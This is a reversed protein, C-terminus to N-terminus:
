INENFLDRLLEQREKIAQATNPRGVILEYNDSDSFMEQLDACIQTRNRVLEQGSEYLEDLAVMTADYLPISLRGSNEKDPIRFANEQFIQKALTIRSLFVNRFQEVRQESLNKHREMCNDLITKVAGRLHSQKRFAFFRLVIECDTMRKFLRHERLKQSIQKSRINDEYPPIEWIENFAREGALTIILENFPGSYLCNRLEQANLNQGGTNLREFVTRRVDEGSSVRWNCLNRNSCANAVYYMLCESWHTTHTLNVAQSTLGRAYTAM